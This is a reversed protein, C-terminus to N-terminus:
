RRRTAVLRGRDSAATAIYDRCVQFVWFMLTAGRLHHLMETHCRRILAVVRPLMEPRRIDDPALTRAEIFRMVMAGPQHYVIEPSLGCRHAAVCTALERDRVIGHVPLDDGLRVVFTDGGDRVVFSANTIGGHLPEPRVTSSWCPLHKAIELRTDGSIGSECM